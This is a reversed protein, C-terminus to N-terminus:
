ETREAAFLLSPRPEAGLNPRVVDREFRGKPVLGARELVRGSARNEVDCTAWVRTVAGTGFAWDRVARAAESMFGRGWAPRALVFGLELAGGERWASIMGVADGAAELIWSYEVGNALREIRREVAAEAAALTAHPRWGLFRMVEPDAGFSEFILSADSLRPARLRLHPTELERYPLPVIPRRGHQRRWEVLQRATLQPLGNGPEFWPPRLEVFIHRDPAVGPDEELLGAPLEFWDAEPDPNPVPSGCRRCFSSRYAPPAVLIPADYHDILDAGALLRYGAAEVGLMAAFAAGSTKRCRSCHCLEFPGVAREVEFRV